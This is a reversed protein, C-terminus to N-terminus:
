RTGTRCPNRQKEMVVLTIGGLMPAYETAAKRWLPIYIADGVDSWQLVKLNNAESSM